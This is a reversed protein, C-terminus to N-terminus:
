TSFLWQLVTWRQWNFEKVQWRIEYIHSLVKTFGAHIAAKPEIAKRLSDSLLCNDSRSKRWVPGSDNWVRAIVHEIIFVCILLVIANKFSTWINLAVARVRSNVRVSRNRSDQLLPLFTTTSYIMFTLQYTARATYEMIWEQCERRVGQFIWSNRLLSANFRFSAQFASEQSISLRMRMMTDSRPTFADHHKEYESKGLFHIQCVDWEINSNM